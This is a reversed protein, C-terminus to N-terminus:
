SEAAVPRRHDASRQGHAPRRAQEQHDQFQSGHCERQPRRTAARSDGLDGTISLPQKDNDLVEIDVIHIRDSELEIRGDLDTYTVGTPAVTFAGNEVIVVGSPHPDGCGHYRHHGAGHRERQDTGADPGTGARPRDGHQQRSPRVFGGKVIRRSRQSQRPAVPEHVGRGACLRKGRALEDAVPRAQRRAQHRASRVDVTGALANFHVQRFAGQTVEFKGAVKPAERVGSIEASANLTGSVMQPRLLLADIAALSMNRASLIMSDEPAGFTGDATIEQNGSVLRFGKVSMAGGGYRIEARGGPATQWEVNQTQLNLRDLIVQQQEPNLVLSGGASLSRQSQKAAVDFAINQDHYDTKATLENVNQGAVVAFTAHTTASIQARAFALDPVQLKFDAALQLASQGSFELDNGTLTGAVRLDRANGTVTADASATGSAKRDFRRTVAELSPTDAHVVLKSQGSDNVALTGSARVNVDPGHVDLQRIQAAADRYTGDVAASGITLGALTSPGLNLRGEAQRGRRHVRRPLHEGSHCRRRADGRNQRRHRTQRLHRRSGRGRVRRVGQRAPHRRRGDHRADAHDFTGSAVSSDELTAAATLALDALTTGSGRAVVHGNLASKYRADDLATVDFARGIRQLDLNGIVADAAYAITGGRWSFSATGPAAISAGAVISDQLTAEVAVSRSGSGAAHYDANLRTDASPVKLSAPLRRLDLGRVRGRLDYSFPAQGAPLM